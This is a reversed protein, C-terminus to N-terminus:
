QCNTSRAEKESIWRHRLYMQIAMLVLFGMFAFVWQWCEVTLEHVEAGKDIVFALLGTGFYIGNMVACAHYIIFGSGFGRYSPKDERVPLVPDGFCDAGPKKFFFKRISNVTRAYLIADLRLGEIYSIVAAGILSLLTSTVGFITYALVRAERSFGDDSFNLLALGVTTVPIATILLFYRYFTALVENTKFHAQSINEYERFQFQTFDEASEAIPCKNNEDGNTKCSSESNNDAM